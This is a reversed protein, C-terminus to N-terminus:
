YGEWQDKSIDSHNPLDTMSKETWVSSSSFREIWVYQCSEVVKNLYHFSSLPIPNHSYQFHCQSAHVFPMANGCIHMNYSPRRWLMLDHIWGDTNTCEMYPEWHGMTKCANQLRRHVRRGRQDRGKARQSPPTTNRTALNTAKHMTHTSPHYPTPIVRSVNGICIWVM